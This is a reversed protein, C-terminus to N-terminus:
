FSTRVGINVAANDVIAETIFHFYINCEQSHMRIQRERTCEENWIMEWSEENEGNILVTIRNFM